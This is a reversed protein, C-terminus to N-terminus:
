SIKIGTLESSHPMGSAHRISEAAQMEMILQNVPEVGAIGRKEGSSRLIEMHGDEFVHIGVIEGAVLITVLVSHPRNRGITFPTKVAELRRLLDFLPHTM